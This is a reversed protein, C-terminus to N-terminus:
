PIQGGYGGRKRLYEVSRVPARDVNDVSLVQTFNTMSTTLRIM